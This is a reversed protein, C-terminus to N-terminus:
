ATLQLGQIYACHWFHPDYLDSSTTSASSHISGFAASEVSLMTTSKSQNGPWGVFHCIYDFSLAVDEQQMATARRRERLHVVGMKVGLQLPKEYM